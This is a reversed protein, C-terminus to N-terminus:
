PLEVGVFIQLDQRQILLAVAQNSRVRSIARRLDEPESLSAGDFSLIIDGRQLVKAAPSGVEVNDVIVGQGATLGLQQAVAPTIPRVVVGLRGRPTPAQRQEELEARAPDPREGVQVRARQQQGGRLFVVEITSGPTADAVTALFEPTTRVRTGAFTLVLDGPQLGAQAAPGGPEISSLLVGHQQPVDFARALDDVVDQIGAGIFGRVVYGQSLLEPLIRRVMDIPVAFGIGQGNRIIATNVGVVEGNMNFLPGGSNGPNISADTQLFNDYPGVGIRRETASLVGVTVSHELGFPSGIAVLWEGPRLRDSSGLVAVPMPRGADIRLLAIDTMSDAGILRADFREGSALSVTIAQAGAVVHWNTILTGNSDVFFASGQGQRPAPSPPGFFPELMTPGIAPSLETQVSVVTERQEEFLTRVDPLLVGEETVRLQPTTVVATSTPKPKQQGYVPVSSLVILGALSSLLLPLARPRSLRAHHM